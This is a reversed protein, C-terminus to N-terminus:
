RAKTSGAEVMQRVLYPGIFDTGRDAYQSCLSALTLPAYEDSKGRAESDFLLTSLNLQQM